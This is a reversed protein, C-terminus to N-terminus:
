PSVCRPLTCQLVCGRADNINIIGNGDPDALPNAPPVTSGRLAGVARVDLIDVDGDSDLDCMLDTVECADGIGNNNSDEQGPNPVDPCNDCVDGVGDGDSDVQDPNPNAPCNDDSDCVGDGDTDICGGGVSRQLVLLAYSQAAYANWSGTGGSNTYQGNAAQHTLITYAYDFYWRAPESPDAYYGAGGPGFSPVRVVMAPDLNVERFAYAPADVAPLAGIDSTDLNGANPIVGSEEIFSYAKSSSWLYYWYSPWGQQTQTTNTYRYRNRLWELYGQVSTDNLDVGGVLQAWAGSATQQTSNPHGANYGHGRETPTLIGGPSSAEGLLGNAAYAAQSNATLTNLTALRAADAYAADSYVGRVSALGAMVLQTTSSDLCGGNVYCWYGHAGQNAATRDFLTNIAAQVGPNPGGTRLYVSLAMMDQGDRYAYFTRPVHSTLIYAVVNNMRAQDAPSANSYGQIEADQDTSQRKELLALLALGAADSASSPNNYAGVSDLWALGNDISTGVDTSFNTVVAQAVGGGALCMVGALLMGKGFKKLKNM